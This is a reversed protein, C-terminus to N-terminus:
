PKIQLRHAYADIDHPAIKGRLSGNCAYVQSQCFQWDIHRQAQKPIGFHQFCGKSLMRLQARAYLKHRGGLHYVHALV